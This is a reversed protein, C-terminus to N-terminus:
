RRVISPLAADKVLITREANAIDFRIEDPQANVNPTANADNIAKRLSGAVPNAANDEVTTVTFTAPVTRAELTEVTPVFRDRATRRSKPSSM